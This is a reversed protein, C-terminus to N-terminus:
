FFEIIFREVIRPNENKQTIKLADESSTLMIDAIHKGMLIPSVKCFLTIFLRRMRFLYISIRTSESLYQFDIRKERLKTEICGLGLQSFDFHQRIVMRTESFKWRNKMKEDSM